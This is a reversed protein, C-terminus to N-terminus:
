CQILPDFDALGHQTSVDLRGNSEDILEVGFQQVIVLQEAEVQLDM